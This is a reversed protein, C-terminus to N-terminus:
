HGSTSLHLSHKKLETKLIRYLNLKNYIYIIFLKYNILYRVQITHPPPKACLMGLLRLCLSEVYLLADDRAELSPHVQELVQPIYLYDKFFFEIYHRWTVKKLPISFLGKWKAANDVNQFDYDNGDPMNHQASFM